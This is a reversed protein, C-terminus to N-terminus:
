VSRLLFEQSPGDLTSMGEQLSTHLMSLRATANPRPVRDPDPAALTWRVSNELSSSREFVARVAELLEEVSDPALDATVTRYQHGALAAFLDRKTPFHRFLTPESVGARKAVAAMSIELPHEDGILAALADVIRRETVARQADRLSPQHGPSSTTTAM